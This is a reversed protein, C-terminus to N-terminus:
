FYTPNQYHLNHALGHAGTQLSRIEGEMRIKERTLEELQREKIAIDAKGSSTNFGRRGAMLIEQRLRNVRGEITQKQLRKHSLEQNTKDEERREFAEKQKKAEDMIRGRQQNYLNNGQSGLSKGLDGLTM